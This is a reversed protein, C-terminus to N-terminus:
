STPAMGTCNESPWVAGGLPGAHRGGADSRTMRDSVGNRVLSPSCSIRGRLSSPGSSSSRSTPETSRMLSASTAASACRTTSGDSSWVIIMLMPGWCGLVCPTSRRMSSSWPSVTSRQLGM